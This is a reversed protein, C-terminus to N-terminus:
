MGLLERGSECAIREVAERPIGAKRFLGLEDQFLTGYRRDPLVCDTGVALPVGLQFAVGLMELQRDITGSVDRRMSESVNPADAARKLAGVTPVWFVNNAKMIALAERTMFFGHEISRVGVGAAEAISASGNAHCMVPLDYRAAIGVIFRLEDRDFGGATVRGAHELSVVGSAVVKIVGVGASALSTIEQEIEELSGVPSGLLTGYGGQKVLARGATNIVLGAVGWDHRLTLAAGERTGADRVAVVGARVIDERAAPYRIHVHADTYSREGPPSLATM